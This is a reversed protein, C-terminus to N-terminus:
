VLDQYIVEASVTNTNVAKKFIGRNCVLGVDRDSTCGESQPLGSVELNDYGCCSGRQSTVPSQPLSRRCSSGKSWTWCLDDTNVCSPWGCLLCLLCCDLELSLRPKPGVALGTLWHATNLSGILKKSESVPCPHSAVELVIPRVFMHTVVECVPM